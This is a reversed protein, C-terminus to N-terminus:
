KDGQGQEKYAQEKDHAQGQKGCVQELKDYAQEQRDCAQGEEEQRCAQGLQQAYAQKYALEQEKGGLGQKCHAQIGEQARSM